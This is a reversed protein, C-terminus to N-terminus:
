RGRNKGPVRAALARYRTRDLDRSAPCIIDATIIGGTGTTCGSFCVNNVADCIQGVIKCACFVPQGCNDTIYGCAIGARACAQASTESCVCAGSGNCIYPPACTTAGCGTGGGGGGVGVAAASVPAAAARVAAAPRRRRWWAGGVGVAGGVGGRGAAGGAGGVGVAGGFAPRRGHMGGFGGAGTTGGRGASAATMGGVGGSGTTGGRGATGATM